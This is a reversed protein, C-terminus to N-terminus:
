ANEALAIARVPCNEAADRVSQAPDDSSEMNVVLEQDDIDYTRDAWMVCKGSGICKDRDVTISLDSRRLETRTM